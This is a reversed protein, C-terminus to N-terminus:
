AAPEECVERKFKVKEICDGLGQDTRIRRPWSLM